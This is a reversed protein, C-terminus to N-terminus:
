FWKLIKAQGTYRDYQAHNTCFYTYTMTYNPCGDAVIEGNNLGASCSKWNHEADYVSYDCTECGTLVRGNDIMVLTM